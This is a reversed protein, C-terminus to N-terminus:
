NRQQHLWHLIKWSLVKLPNFRAEKLDLLGIPLYTYKM